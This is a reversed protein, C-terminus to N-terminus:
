NSYYILITVIIQIVQFYVECNDNENVDLDTWFVALLNRQNLNTDLVPLKQPNFSPYEEEFSILGNVTIQM